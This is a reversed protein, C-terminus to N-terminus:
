ENSWSFPRSREIGHRAFFAELEAQRIAKGREDAEKRLEARRRGKQEASVHKYPRTTDSVEVVAGADPVHQDAKDWNLKTM